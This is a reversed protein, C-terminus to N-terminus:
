PAAMLPEPICKENFFDKDPNLALLVVKPSCHILVTFNDINKQLGTFIGLRGLSEESVQYPSVFPWGPLNDRVLPTTVLNCM